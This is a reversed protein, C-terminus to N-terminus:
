PDGLAQAASSNLRLTASRVNRDLAFRITLNKNESDTVSQFRGLTYCVRILVHLLPVGPKQLLDPM